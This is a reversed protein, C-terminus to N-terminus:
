HKILKYTKSDVTLYYMGSPLVSLDLQSINDSTTGALLVSGINNQIRYNSASKNDKEIVVFNEVLTPYVKVNS